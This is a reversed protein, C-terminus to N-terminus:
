AQKKMSQLHKLAKGSIVVMQMHTQATTQNIISDCLSLFYFFLKYILINYIMIFRSIMM